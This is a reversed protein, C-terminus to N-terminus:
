QSNGPIFVTVVTGGGERASITLTGRCMMELRQRINNLAIHPEDDNAPNFDPGDNEVIIESGSNTQRSKICIHLPDGNPDMGHKVANEVVPQLTLPPVRFMTHPTDYEVFLRDEHQAQEVSLYAQTHKLEDAFPVTDESAIATFNKRLYDTFNLTVQQAKDADQKCLYYITTMTNYIFHPRMQLVMVSARQNAIERQQRMYQDMNDSLILAFSVMAFLSMGLVVLTEIYYFMHLLIVATMYVLYILLAIFYKKPLKNIRYSLGTTNLIMDVALPTVYFAWFPGRFFQNDDTVYYFVDTFQAAALIVFYVGLVATVLWFLVSNKIKEGSYHLIFLTPMFVPTVLFAGELLYIIRSAVAKSPDYWFILAIFCTVACLFMLSFLAIFYRKSWRDLPMFVSLLIGIAMIIIIAGGLSFGFYDLLSMM